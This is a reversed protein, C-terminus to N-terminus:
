LELFTRVVIGQNADFTFPNENSNYLVRGTYKDVVPSSKVQTCNYLRGSDAEAVLNGLPSIYRMSLSQLYVLGHTTDIHVVRFKANSSTLIEDKLLGSYSLFTTKYVVLDSDLTFVKQAQITLPDKIIGFKRFEQQLSTVDEQFRLQSSVVVTSAFLQQVVDRGHGGIPAYIAQAEAEILAGTLDARNVDTISVTAYSYNQGPNTVVIKTLEGNAVVATATCGTGDGTVTLVTTSTYGQGPVTVKISHIGGNIANQEVVSQTQVFNSETIIPKLVAGTGLGTVRLIMNNYGIGANDTAVGVIVGNSIIPTYAAGQGDGQVIIQTTQDTPYLKGPDKIVVNVLRGQSMVAELVAGTNEPYLGTPSGSIYNMTLTPTGTYGAASKTIKVSIISGTVQSVVPSLQAGGVTISVVDTSKYGIGPNDIVIATIVGAVITAHLKANIGITSTISVDCGKTYGSGGSSLSINTIEGLASVTVSSVTAGSGTTSGSVIISTSPTFTYGSGGDAVVVTDVSGYNYFSDSLARQVPIYSISAFNKRKFSPISYLFKWLYGDATRFPTFSEGSPTVTSVSNEANDLCAYVRDDLTLVYYGHEKMNVRHDWQPIVTNLKYDYRKAALSVDNKGVKKIYLIDDRNTLDESYSMTVDNIPVIDTDGVWKDIKGLYYYYQSRQLQIDELLLSALDTNFDHRISRTM